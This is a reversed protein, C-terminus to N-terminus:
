RSNMPGYLIFALLKYSDDFYTQM